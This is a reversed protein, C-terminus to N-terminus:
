RPARNLLPTLAQRVKGSQLARMLTSATTEPNSAMWRSVKAIDLGRELILAHVQATLADTAKAVKFATMDPEEGRIGALNKLQAAMETQNGRLAHVLYPALVGVPAAQMETLFERDMPHAVEPDPGSEFGTVTDDRGTQADFMSPAVTEGEKVSLDPTTVVMGAKELRAATAADTRMGGVNVLGDDMPIVVSQPGLVQHKMIGSFDPGARYTRTDTVRVQYAASNDAVNVPRMARMLDENSTIRHDEAM